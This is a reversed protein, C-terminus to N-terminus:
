SGVKHGGSKSFDASKEKGDNRDGKWGEGKKEIEGKMGGKGIKEEFKEAKVGDGM